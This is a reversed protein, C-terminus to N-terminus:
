GNGSNGERTRGTLLWFCKILEAIGQAWLLAFGTFFALRFPWIIPNWASQGSRDGAVFAEVWYEWLGLTVWSVVPLFLVVYGVTDVLAKTKDSFHGYIVDIRIHGRERLTYAAGILAHTGMAMYGLEFAWITPASLIYRSFVEYCSAIILPFVLWAIVLGSLGSVREILGVVVGMNEGRRGVHSGNCRLIPAEVIGFLFPLASVASGM